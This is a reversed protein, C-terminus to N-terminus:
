VAKSLEPQFTFMQAEWDNALYTTTAAGSKSTYANYWVPVMIHKGKLNVLKSPAGAAVLAKSLQVMEVTEVLDGFNDNRFSAIGLEMINSVEGTARNTIQRSSIGKCVGAIFKGFMPKQM